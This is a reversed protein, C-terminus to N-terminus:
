EKELLIKEELIFTLKEDLQTENSAAALTVGLKKVGAFVRADVDFAVFHFYVPSGSKPADAQLKPLVEEPPPGQTNEGDTIVLVHRAGAKVKLFAETAERVASGLPTGGDPKGLEALGSRMAAANFPGIKVIESAGHDRFTFLGARVKRGGTANFKELRAIISEIARTAIQYKPEKGGSKGKVADKMSGSTDYVIAVAVDGDAALGLSASALLACVWQPIKAPLSM